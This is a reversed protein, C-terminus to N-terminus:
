TSPVLSVVGSVPDVEVRPAPALRLRPDESCVGSALDFRYGHWPCRVSSGEVAADALPGLRHPCVTAHALLRGEISVIRYPEGGFDVVLPV